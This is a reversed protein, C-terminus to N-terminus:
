TIMGKRVRVLLFDPKHIDRRYEPYKEMIEKSPVPEILQELIFKSEILTNIISSFTRHYKVVNDVFWTSERKGDFSYNSINAHVINGSEDRTWRAGSTFCTNVPNEQSFVFIGNEELLNYVNICLSKFDEVYHVALSSIIISFKKDLKGIDEMPMNIYEIKKHSNEKWATELMKKSLDIGTVRQAGLRVFEACNEGYGCGLDLVSSGSMAPLLSFLSPKEFLINANVDNNRINRYGEFFIENDYINQLSM